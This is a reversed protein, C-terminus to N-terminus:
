LINYRKIAIVCLIVLIVMATNVIIKVLSMIAFIVNAVLSVIGLTKGVKGLTAGATNKSYNAFVIAVIGCIFSSIFGFPQTMAIIACVLSTIGRNQNAIKTKVMKRRNKNIAVTLTKECEECVEYENRTEKSCFKCKM